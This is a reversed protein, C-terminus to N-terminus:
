APAGRSSRRTGRRAPGGARPARRSAAPRCRGCSSPGSLAARVRGRGPVDAPSRGTSVTGYRTRSEMGHVRPARVGARRSPLRRGRTRRAARRRPPRARRARVPALEPDLERGAGDALAVDVEELAGPAARQGRDVPVLRRPDDGLDPGTDLPERDAVVDDHRQDPRASGAGGAGAALVGEALCGEREVLAPRQGRAVAGRDHLAEARSGEGLVDDDVGGLHDGDRRLDREVLAAKSAQPTIVPKPATTLVARTSGPLLTTTTPVPPTPRLATWPATTAPAVVM